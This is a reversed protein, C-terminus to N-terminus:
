KKLIDMMINRAELEEIDLEAENTYQTRSDINFKKINLKNLYLNEDTLLDNDKLAATKKNQRAYSKEQLVEKNNFAKHYTIQEPSSVELDDFELANKFSRETIQTQNNNQLRIDPQVGSIQWTKGNPAFLSGTTLSINSNNSSISASNKASNPLQMNSPLQFLSQMTAKGYSNQGVILARNYYQLSSAILESSSASQSNILVIMPLTYLAPKQTRHIFLENSSKSMFAVSNKPLFLELLSFAQEIYGGPNNRLDLIIAKTKKNIKSKIFNNISEKYNGAFRKIQFSAIGDKLKHEMISDIENIPVRAICHTNLNKSNKSLIKLCVKSKLEGYALQAVEEYNLKSLPVFKNNASQISQVEDGLQVKQKLLPSHKQIKSILWKSKAKDEELSIGIGGTSKGLRTSFLKYSDLDFYASHPDLSLMLANFYKNEINMKFNKILGIIDKQVSKNIALFATNRDVKKEIEYSLTKFTILQKWYKQQETKDTFYTHVYKRNLFSSESEKIDKVNFNRSLQLIHLLRTKYIDSIANISNQYNKNDDDNKLETINKIYDKSLQSKIFEIDSKLLFLKNSDLNSVFNFFSDRYFKADLKNQSLHYKESMYVLDTLISHSKADLVNNTKSTFAFSAMSTNLWYAGLCINIIVLLYRAKM